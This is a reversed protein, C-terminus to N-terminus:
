IRRWVGDVDTEAFASYLLRAAPVPRYDILLGLAVHEFFFQKQEATMSRMAQGIVAQAEAHRQERSALLSDQAASPAVFPRGALKSALANVFDRVKDSGYWISSNTNI